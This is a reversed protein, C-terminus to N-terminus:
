LLEKHIDQAGALDQKTNLKQEYQAPCYQQAYASKKSSPQTLQKM